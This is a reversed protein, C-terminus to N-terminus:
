ILKKPKSSLHSYWKKWLTVLFKKLNYLPNFEVEEILDELEQSQTSDLKVEFIDEIKIDDVLTTFDVEIKNNKWTAFGEIFHVNM